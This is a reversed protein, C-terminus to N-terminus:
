GEAEAPAPSTLSKTEFGVKVLGEPRNLMLATYGFLAADRGGKAIHEAEVRLPSGALEYHTVASKTGLIATGSEVFESTAWNAPDAIRGMLRLYEPMDLRTLTLIQEFDAPNILAFTAQSHLKQDIAISGRAIATLIHPAEGGIETANDVVFRGAERDTEYAYSEAMAAWYARLFETEGFDWFIRDLDNGGAWRQADREVTELSAGKSPIEAKNGAYKDVGPKTKWRYGIAKRGRLPAQTLHPIVRREYTVGEWLHGLWQPATRQIMGADTIDTLEAMLDSTADGRVSACLYDIVQDLSAHVEAAPASNEGPLVGPSLTTKTVTEEKDETTPTSEEAEEEPSDAPPTDPTHEAHVESVRASRFAPIPVLAVANLVADTITTGQRERISAEVSFADITKESAKLLATDAEPHSGLAFTAYLGDQRDEVSTAHGVPIGEPSHGALLKLSSLDPPLHLAGRPFTVTGTSTRGYEDWPMIRGTITRSEAATVLTDGPDVAVITDTSM